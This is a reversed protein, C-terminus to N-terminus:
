GRLCDQWLSPLGWSFQVIRAGADLAAQLTTPETRLLYNIAFPRDTAAKVRAIRPATNAPGVGAQGLAGLAGAASVAITLEPDSVIGMGAQFIPYKLGFTKM